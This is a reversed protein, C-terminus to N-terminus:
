HEKHVAYLPHIDQLNPSLTGDPHKLMTHFGRVSPSVLGSNVYFYIPVIPFEEQVLIAEAEVLLAM